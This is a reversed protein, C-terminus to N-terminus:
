HKNKLRPIVTLFLRALGASLFTIGLCVSIQLAPRDPLLKEAIDLGIVQNLYLPLSFSGLFYIVKHDFFQNGYTQRSFSAAIAFFLALTFIIEYKASMTTVCFTLAGLYCLTESVSLLCKVSHTLPQKSLFVSLEYASAGLAIEAVGRLLYVPIFGAWTETGPAFTGYQHTLYGLIMLSGVPALVHVFMSYYKRCLPYLLALAFIMCCIYWEVRNLPSGFGLKQILLLNPVYDLFKRVLMRLSYGELLAKTIFLVVFAIVHYLFIAKVKRFLFRFTESGLDHCRPDKQIQSSVSKAMLFGTVLFFFEVGFYGRPFFAFHQTSKDINLFHRQCHFLIISICFIFRFFEVKGNKEHYSVELDNLLAIIDM